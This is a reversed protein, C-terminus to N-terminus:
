SRRFLGGFVIALGVVILILPWILGFSGFGLSLFVIALIISGLVPRRYAPILLRVLSELLLLLGAGIFVLSWAELRMFPLVFPLDPYDLGIGELTRTFADLLGLNAALFVVGAWILILAWVAAGLPDRRWKEEQSKEEHKQLEKGDKEDRKEDRDDKTM